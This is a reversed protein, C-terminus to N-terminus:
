IALRVVIRNDFGLGQLIDSIENQASSAIVIKDFEPRREFLKAPSVADMGNSNAFGWVENGSQILAEAVRDGSNGTGYIAVPKNDFDIFSLLHSIYQGNDYPIKSLGLKHLQKNTYHRQRTAVALLAAGSNTRNASLNKNHVRYFGLVEDLCLVKETTMALMLICGDSYGRMEEVDVLPFFPDLVERAFSLGSTPSHQYMYGFNVLVNSWDVDTRVRRYTKKENVALLHQVIKGSKHSEVIRELKNPYWYDDSDLFAIIKGRGVEFGANFASTQGGNEKFVKVIRSDSLSSIIERSNDTSGDDVVILEFDTFSQSLVSEVADLIYDSYNYNDCIVSVETM